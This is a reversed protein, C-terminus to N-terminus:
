AAIWGYVLMTIGITPDHGLRALGISAMVVAFVSGSRTHAGTDQGPPSLGAKHAPRRHHDPGADIRHGEA